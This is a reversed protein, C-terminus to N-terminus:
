IRVWWRLKGKWFCLVLEGISPELSIALSRTGVSGRPASLPQSPLSDKCSHTHGERYGGMVCVSGDCVCVYVSSGRLPWCPDIGGKHPSKDTSSPVLLDDSPLWVFTWSMEDPRPNLVHVVPSTCVACPNPPLHANIPSWHRRLTFPSIVPTKSDNKEWNTHESIVHTFTSFFSTFHYDITERDQPKRFCDLTECSQAHPQEHELDLTASLEGVSQLSIYCGEKPGWKFLLTHLCAQFHRCSSATKSIESPKQPWYTWNLLCRIWCSSLNLWWLTSQPSQMTWLSLLVWTPVHRMVM